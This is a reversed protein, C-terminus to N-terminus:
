ACYPLLIFVNCQGTKWGNTAGSYLGTAINCQTDLLYTGVQIDSLFKTVVDTPLPSLGSFGFLSKWLTFSFDSFFYILM